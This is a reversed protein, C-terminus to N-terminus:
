PAVTIHYTIDLQLNTPIMPFTGKFKITHLGAPMPAVMVYIGDAVVPDYVAAVNPEGCIAAMINDVPVLTSFVPSQARFRVCGALDPSDIITDGDISCFVDTVNAVADECRNRLETVSFNTDPEACEQNDWSVNIIPFYLAVGHPITINRVATGTLPVNNPTLLGCLFWVPDIQGRAAEAGTTDFVPHRDYPLEYIWQWFRASWGSYSAGYHVEEPALVYDSGRPARGGGGCGGLALGGLFGIMLVERAFRINRM